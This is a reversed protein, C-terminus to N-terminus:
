KSGGSPYLLAQLKEITELDGLEGREPEREQAAEDAEVLLRMVDTEREGTRRAVEGALDILSLPAGRGFRARLSELAFGAYQSLAHRRARARAYSRGLARVHDAFARRASDNPDRRIGFAAGRHWLLVLLFGLIELLLPSLGANQLARIPSSVGGGSWAGVIGLTGSPPGFLDLSFAANDGVSLSLNGLLESNAILTVSGGGYPFTAVHANGYCSAGIRLGNTAANSKRRLYRPGTDVVTLEQGLPRPATDLPRACPVADEVDVELEKL